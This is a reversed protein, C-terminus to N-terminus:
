KNRDQEGMFFPGSKTILIMNYPFLLIGHVKPLISIYMYQILPYRLTTELQQLM